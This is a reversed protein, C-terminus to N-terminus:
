IKTSSKDIPPATPELHRLHADTFFFFGLIGTYSEILFGVAGGVRRIPSRVGSSNLSGDPRFAFCLPLIMLFGSSSVHDIVVNLVSLPRPRIHHYRETGCYHGTFHPLVPREFYRLHQSVPTYTQLIEGTFVAFGCKFGDIEQPFPGRSTL